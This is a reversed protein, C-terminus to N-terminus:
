KVDTFTTKTFNTYGTSLLTFLKKSRYAQELSLSKDLTGNLLDFVPVDEFVDSDFRSNKIIYVDTPNDIVCISNNGIETVQSFFTRIETYLQPIPHPINNKFLWEFAVWKKNGGNMFFNHTPEKKNDPLLYAKVNCFKRIEDHILSRSKCINSNLILYRMTWYSFTKLNIFIPSNKYKKRYEDYLYQYIDLLVTRRLKENKWARRLDFDKRIAYYERGDECVIGISIFDITPLKKVGNFENIAIDLFYNM